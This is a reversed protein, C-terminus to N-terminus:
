EGFIIIEDSRDTANFRIRLFRTKNTGCDTHSLYYKFYTKNRKYLEREDPKGFFDIYERVSHNKFSGKNSQIADLYKLRYGKCGM